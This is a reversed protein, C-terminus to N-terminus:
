LLQKGPPGALSEIVLRNFCVLATTSVSGGAMRVLRMAEMLSVALDAWALERKNRDTPRYRIAVVEAM